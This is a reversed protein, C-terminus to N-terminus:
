PEAFPQSTGVQLLLSLHNEGSVRTYHVNKALTHIMFWGFGGEPLDARTVDLDPALGVPAKGTPMPMGQDVVLLHLGLSDHHGHVEITTTDSSTALSHEFVNNLVEALVLEVTGLEDVNLGLPVLKSLVLALGARVGDEAGLIPVSFPAISNGNAM